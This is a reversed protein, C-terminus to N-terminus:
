LNTNKALYNWFRTIGAGKVFTLRLQNICAFLLVINLSLNSMPRVRTMQKYLNKIPNVSKLRIYFLLSHFINIVFDDLCSDYKNALDRENILTNIENYFLLISSTTKLLSSNSSKKNNSQRYFCDIEAEKYVKFDPHYKLLIKSHFEPDQLRQYQESFRIRNQEIFSRKWIPCTISWPIKYSLFLKIYDGAEDTYLNIGGPMDGLENKFMGMNFVGFDMYPNEEMKYLRQELCYPVLLDDADLFMLYDGIAHEIGINRCVSAGKPNNNRRIFRIRPDRNSFEMIMEPSSDTSGDDIILWEWNNHTQCVISSFTAEITQASNFNPTIISILNKKLTM